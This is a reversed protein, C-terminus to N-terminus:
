LAMLKEIDIKVLPITVFGSEIEGVQEIVVGKKKLLRLLGENESYNKIALVDHSKDFNPINIKMFPELNETVFLYQKNHVEVHVNYIENGCSMKM